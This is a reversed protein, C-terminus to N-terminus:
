ANLLTFYRHEPIDRFSDSQGAGYTDPNITVTTFKEKLIEFAKSFPTVEGSLILASTHASIMELNRIPWKVAIPTPSKGNRYYLDIFSDSVVGLTQDPSSLGSFYKLGVALASVISIRPYRETFLRNIERITGTILYQNLVLDSNVEFDDPRATPYALMLYAEAKSPEFAESPILTHIQFDTVLKISKWFRASLFPHEELLRTYQAICAGIDNSNGSFHDELWLVQDDSRVMFRMRSFQVEFVLDYIDTRETSFRDDTIRISNNM